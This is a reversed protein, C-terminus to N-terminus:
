GFFENAPDSTLRPIVTNTCPSSFGFISYMNRGPATGLNKASKQKERTDQLMVYATTVYDPIRLKRSGEPGSWAQLPDEINVVVLFM